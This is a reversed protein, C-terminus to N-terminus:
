IEVFNMKMVLNLGHSDELLVVTKSTGDATFSYEKSKGYYGHGTYISDDHIYSGQLSFYGPMCSYDFLATLTSLKNKEFQNNLNRSASLKLTEHGSSLFNNSYEICWSGDNGCDTKEGGVSSFTEMMAIGDFSSSSFGDLDVDFIANQGRYLSLGSFYFNGAVLQHQNKEVWLEVSDLAYYITEEKFIATYEKDSDVVITRVSETNEDSWKVFEYGEKAEAYIVITSGNSYSGAGYVNGQQSNANLEVDFKGFNCGSLFFSCLIVLVAGVKVKKM